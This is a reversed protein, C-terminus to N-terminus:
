WNEAPVPAKFRMKGDCNGGYPIGRFVAVGGRNEGKILGHTTRVIPTDQKVIGWIPSGYGNERANTGLLLLSFIVVVYIRNKM